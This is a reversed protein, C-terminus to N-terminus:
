WRIASLGSVLLPVVTLLGFAPLTCTVLPFLLLVPLRRARGEAHRRRSLRADVALLDLSPGIPVGLRQSSQLASVLGHLSPSAVALTALSDVFPVGLAVARASEVLAPHLARLSSPPGREGLLQLTDRPTSGNALGARLLDILMPVAVSRAEAAARLERRSSMWGLLLAGVFLVPGCWWHWFSSTLAVLTTLGLRRDDLYRVPDTGLTRASSPRRAIALGFRRRLRLGFSDLAGVRGAVPLRAGPRTPRRAPPGQASRLVVVGLFALSFAVSGLAPLDVNM